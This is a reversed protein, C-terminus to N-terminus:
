FASTNFTEAVWRPLGRYTVPFDNCTRMGVMVAATTHLGASLCTRQTGQRRLSREAFVQIPKWLIQLVSTCPCSVWLFDTMDSLLARQQSLVLHSVPFVAPHTPFCSFTPFLITDKTDRRTSFVPFFFTYGYVKFFHNTHSFVPHTLSM